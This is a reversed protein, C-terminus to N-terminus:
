KAILISIRLPSCTCTVNQEFFKPNSKGRSLPTPTKNGEVFASLVLALDALQVNDILRIYTVDNGKSFIPPAIEKRETKGDSSRTTFVRMVSRKSPPISAYSLILDFQISSNEPPDQAIGAVVFTKDEENWIRHHITIERGVADNQGFYKQAASQTLVISNPNALVTKPDGHM